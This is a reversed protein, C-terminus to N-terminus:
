ELAHSSHAIHTTSVGASTRAESRFSFEFLSRGLLPMSQWSTLAFQNNFAPMRDCRLPIEVTEAGVARDNDSIFGDGADGGLLRVQHLGRIPVQIDIM